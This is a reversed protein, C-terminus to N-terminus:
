LGSTRPSYEINDYFHKVYGSCRSGSIIVHGNQSYQQNSTTHVGSYYASSPQQQSREFNRRKWWFLFSVGLVLLLALISVAIGFYIDTMNKDSIKVSQVETSTSVIVKEKFTDNHPRKSVNGFAM